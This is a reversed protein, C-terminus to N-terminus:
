LAFPDSTKLSRVNVDYDYDDDDDDYLKCPTLGTVMEPGMLLGSTEEPATRPKM